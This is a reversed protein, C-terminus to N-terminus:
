RIQPVQEVDFLGAVEANGSLIGWSHHDYNAKVFLNLHSFENDLYVLQMYPATKSQTHILRGQGAAEVFWEIPLYLEGLRNNGTTYEVKYGMSHSYVRNAYVTRVFVTPQDQQAFLGATVIGFIAAALVLKKM